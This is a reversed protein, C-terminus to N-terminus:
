TSSSASGKGAEDGSPSSSRQQAKYREVAEDKLLGLTVLEQKNEPNFVFDLLKQPSNDFRKRLDSPLTMFMNDAEIQANLYFEYDPVNGDIVQDTSFKPSINNMYAMFASTDMKTQKTFRKVMLNVDCDKKFSQDTKSPDDCMLQVRKSGDFRKVVLHRAGNVSIEVVEGVVTDKM